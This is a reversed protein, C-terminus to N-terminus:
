GADGAALRGLQAAMGAEAKDGLEKFKGGLFPEALRLLGKLKIDATYTVVTGGDPVEAFEMTDIAHTTSGDGVLTVLRNEKFATIEYVMELERDGFTVVLDYIQGLRPGGDDRAVSTETGPDWEQNNSFDALYSFVREVPADTTITRIIKPM